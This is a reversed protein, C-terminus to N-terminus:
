RYDKPVELNTLIITNRPINTDTTLKMGFFYGKKFVEHLGCWECKLIVDGEIEIRSVHHWGHRHALTMIRRYLYRYYLSKMM